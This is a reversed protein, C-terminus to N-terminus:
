VDEIEWFKSWKGKKFEWRYVKDDSGVAYVYGLYPTTVSVIKVDTDKYKSM